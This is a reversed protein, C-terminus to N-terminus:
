HPTANVEISKQSEGGANIATVVYYYPSGNTLGTDTYTTSAVSAKYPSTGEGGATTGRYINYGTATSASGWSLVIQASSSSATLGIPAAPVAVPPFLVPIGQGASLTRSVPGVPGATLTFGASGNLNCTVLGATAGLNFANDQVVGTATFQLQKTGAVVAINVNTASLLLPQQNPCQLTLNSVTPNQGPVAPAIQASPTEGIQLIVSWSLQSSGGGGIGTHQFMPSFVGLSLNPGDATVLTVPAANISFAHTADISMSLKYKLAIGAPPVVGPVTYSTEFSCPVADVSAPVTPDPSVNTIAPNAIVTGSSDVISWLAPVCVSRPVGLAIQHEVHLSGSAVISNQPGEKLTTTFKDGDVALSAPSPVQYWARDGKNTAPSVYTMVQFLNITTNVGDNASAAISGSASLFPLGVSTSAGAQVSFNQKNGYVKYVSTGRMRQLLWNPSNFAAPDGKHDFYWKWLVLRPYLAISSDYVSFMSPIPSEFTGDIIDMSWSTSTSADADLSAKVDAIPVSYGGSVSIKGSVSSGCTQGYTTGNYKPNLLAADKDGVSISIVRNPDSTVDADAAKDADSYLYTFLSGLSQGVPGKIYSNISIGRQIDMPIATSPATSTSGFAGKKELMLHANGTQGPLCTQLMSTFDNELVGALQSHGAADTSPTFPIQPASSQGSAGVVPVMFSALIACRISSRM